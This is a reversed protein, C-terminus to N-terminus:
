DEDDEGDRRYAVMADVRHVATSFSRLRVQEAKAEDILAADSVAWEEPVPTNISTYALIQFSGLTARILRVM